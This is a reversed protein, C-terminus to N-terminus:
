KNPYAIENPDDGSFHLIDRQVAYSRGAVASDDPDFWEYASKKLSHNNEPYVFVTCSGGNNNIRESLDTNWDVLSYFDQDSIHLIIEEDILYGPYNFASMANTAEIIMPDNDVIVRGDNEVNLMYEKNSIDAVYNNYADYMQNYKKELVQEMSNGWYDKQWDWDDPNISGIWDPPWPFVFNPNISGNSGEPTGNWEFDEQTGAKFADLTQEMPGYTHVQTIRTPFCGSWISSSSVSNKLSSGEGSVALATLVSDGAQSHGLLHISDLDVKVADDSEYGWVSWDTDELTGLGDILNLMDIAYFLPSTYSGNDFATLFEIGEAPVNHVTGHGRFGPVCLIYGADIYADFIDGYYSEPAYNFGYSPANKEGIWGHGFVVVPYGEEPMDTAPIDIRSYVRLGDSHYAAMYTNYTPTGDTSYFQQYENTGGAVGLWDILTIKSGYPRSRLAEVSMDYLSDLETDTWKEYDQPGLGTGSEMHGEAVSLFPLLLFLVALVSLKKLNNM